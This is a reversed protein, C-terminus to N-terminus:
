AQVAGLDIETDGDWYYLNFEPPWVTKKLGRFSYRTPEDQYSALERSLKPNDLMNGWESPHRFGCAFQQTQGIVGKEYRTPVGNQSAQLARLRQYAQKGISVRHNDALRKVGLAIRLAKFM